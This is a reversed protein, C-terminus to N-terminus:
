NLSVAPSKSSKKERHSLSSVKEMYCAISNVENKEWRKAVVLRYRVDLSMFFITEYM